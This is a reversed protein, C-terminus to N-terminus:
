RGPPRARYAEVAAEHEADRAADEDSMDVSAWQGWGLQWRGMEPDWYQVDGSEFLRVQGGFLEWVRITTAPQAPADAAGDLPEFEVTIRWCGSKGVAERPALAIDLDFTGRDAGRDFLWGRDTLEGAVETTKTLRM